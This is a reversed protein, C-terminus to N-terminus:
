KGTEFLKQIWGWWSYIIKDNFPVFDIESQFINHILKTLAYKIDIYPIYAREHSTVTSSTQPALFCLPWTAGANLFLSRMRFTGVQSIQAGELHFGDPFNQEFSVPIFYPNWLSIIRRKWIRASHYKCSPFLYLYPIQSLKSLQPSFLSPFRPFIIIKKPSQRSKGKRRLCKPFYKM